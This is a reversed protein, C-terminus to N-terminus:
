LLVSVMADAVMALLLLPLHVISGIFVVRARRTSRDAALLWVVGLFGIGSVAAVLLYAPGLRETVFLAPMLTIPVLCVSWALMARVTRAGDPDVVPLVRFGGRAYDERYMWAIALFHPIQWVFMIVVLSWAAPSALSGLGGGPIGATWGILPPLAGPVAGIVTALPSVPKMPTYAALYLAITTASIASPLWGAAIWLVGVGAVSLASGVALVRRPSVRHQPLPRTRTREMRADRDRELLQNLANAGAASLATGLLCGGLALLLAPASWARASAAMVFGVFATITVLRTIRPKTTELLASGVAVAGARIGAPPSIAIDAVHSM